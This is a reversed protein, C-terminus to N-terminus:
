IDILQMWRATKRIRCREWSTIRFVLIPNWTCRRWTTGIHSQFIGDPTWTSCTDTSIASTSYAAICATRPGSEVRRWRRQGVTSTVRVSIQVFLHRKLVITSSKPYLSRHKSIKGRTHCLLGYNCKYMPFEAVGDLNLQFEEQLRMILHQYFGIGSYLLNVLLAIEDNNWVDQQLRVLIKLVHKIVRQGSENGRLRVWIINSSTPLEDNKDFLLYSSYTM